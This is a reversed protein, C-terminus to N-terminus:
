HQSEFRCGGRVEVDNSREDLIFERLRFLREPALLGDSM